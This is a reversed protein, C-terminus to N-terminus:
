KLRKGAHAPIIGFDDGISLGAVVKGRMLPSSGWMIRYLARIAAKEGCSRPHDGVGTFLDCLLQSKGAHAPIIRESASM